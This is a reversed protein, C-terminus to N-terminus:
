ACVVGTCGDPDGASINHGGDIVTGPDAFIGHRANGITLNNSVTVAQSPVLATHLGDAIPRGLRDSTGAPKFGNGIFLNGNLTMSGPQAPGDFSMGAAGNGIFVNGSVSSGDVDDVKPATIDVGLTNAFFHNGTVTTRPTGTGFVLGATAGTFSNNQVVWGASTAFEVTSRVFTSDSITVDDSEAASISSDIFDDHTYQTHGSFVELQLTTHNFHDGSLVDFNSHDRFFLTTNNFTCNTITVDAALLNHVAERGDVTLGSLTVPSLDVLDVGTDFGKISGNEIVIHGTSALDIGAGTGDGIISHGNLDVTLNQDITIRLATGHCTLDSTLTISTHITEGCVVDDASAPTAPAIAIGLAVVALLTILRRM